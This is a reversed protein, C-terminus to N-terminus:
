PASQCLHATPLHPGWMRWRGTGLRRETEGSGGNLRVWGESGAIGRMGRRVSGESKTRGAM